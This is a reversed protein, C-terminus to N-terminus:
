DDELFFAPKLQYLLHDEELKPSHGAVYLTGTKTDLVFPVNGTDSAQYRGVQGTNQYFIIIIFAAALAGILGSKFDM